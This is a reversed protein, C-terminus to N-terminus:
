YVSRSSGPQESGIPGESKQSPDRGSAVFLKNPRLDPLSKKNSITRKSKPGGGAYSANRGHLPLQTHTPSSVEVGSLFSEEPNPSPKEPSRSPSTATSYPIPFPGLQLRSPWDPHRLHSSSPASASPSHDLQFYVSTDSELSFSRTHYLGKSRLPTTQITSSLDPPFKFTDGSFVFYM